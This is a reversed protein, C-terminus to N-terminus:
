YTKKKYNIKLKTICIKCKLIMSKKVHKYYYNKKIVLTNEWLLTIKDSKNKLKNEKRYLM